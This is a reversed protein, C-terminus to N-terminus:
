KALFFWLSFELTDIALALVIYLIYHLSTFRHLGWTSIVMCFRSALRVNLTLRLSSMSFLGSSISPCEFQNSADSSTKFSMLPNSINCFNKFTESTTEHVKYARVCTPLVKYPDMPGQQTNEKCDARDFM